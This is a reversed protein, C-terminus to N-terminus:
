NNTTLQQGTPRPPRLTFRPPPPFRARQAAIQEPTMMEVLTDQARAYTEIDVRPPTGAASPLAPFNLHDSM